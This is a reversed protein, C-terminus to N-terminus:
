LNVIIAYLAVSVTWVSLTISHHGVKAFALRIRAWTVSRMAGYTISWGGWCRWDPMGDKGTHLPPKDGEFMGMTQHVNAMAKAIWGFQRAGEGVSLIGCSGILFSLLCFGVGLVLSHGHDSEAIHTIAVALRYNLM